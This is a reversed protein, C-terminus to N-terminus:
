IFSKAIREAIADVMQPPMQYQETRVAEKLREVKSFHEKEFDTTLKSSEQLQASAKPSIDVRDQVDLASTSINRRKTEPNRLFEAVRQIIDTRM